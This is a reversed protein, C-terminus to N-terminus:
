RPPAAATLGPATPLLKEPGGEPTAEVWTLLPGLETAEPSVAVFTVDRGQRGARIHPPWEALELMEQALSENAFRMRWTALPADTETDRLLSVADARMGALVDWSLDRRPEPRMRQVFADVLWVGFVFTGLSEVNPPLEPLAVQALETEESWPGDFPEEVGYGAMLQRTSVPPAAYLASVADAGGAQWAPLVYGLGWSYVLYRDVMWHPTDAALFGRLETDRQEDIMGQWDFDAPDVGELELVLLQAYLQAEGEIIARAALWRDFTTAHQAYFADLGTEADRLAHTLEHAMIRIAEPDEPALPPAETVEGGDGQPTAPMVVQSSQPDYYAPITEQRQKTADPESWMEPALAFLALAAMQQRQLLALEPTLPQPAAGDGAFTVQVPTAQSGRECALSDMLQAQCTQEFINCAAPECEAAGGDGGGGGCAPVTGLLAALALRTLAPVRSALPPGSPRVGDYRRRASASSDGARARPRGSRREIGGDM